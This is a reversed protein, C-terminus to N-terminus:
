SLSDLHTQQRLSAITHDSSTTLLADDVYTGIVTNELTPLDLNYM